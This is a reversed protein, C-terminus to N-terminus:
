ITCVLATEVETCTDRMWATKHLGDDGLEAASLPLAILIAAIALLPRM